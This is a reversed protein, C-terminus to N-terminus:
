IKNKMIQYELYDWDDQCDVETVMPTIYALCKDGWLQHNKLVYKVKVIDIYGNPQYTPEFMQRPHGCREVEGGGLDRFYDGKKTFCKFATESMEHSSRMSTCDNNYFYYIATEIIRSDRLPTTPRLIAIHNFIEDFNNDIMERIFHKVYDFDNSTDTCLEPPRHIVQAGAKLSIEAYVRSDTSVYVDTIVDCELAAKISYVLLPKGNLEKINKHPIGKSGSRAPILAIM